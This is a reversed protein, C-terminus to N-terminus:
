RNRGGIVTGGFLAHVATLLTDDADPTKRENEAYGIAWIAFALANEPNSTIIEILLQDRQENYSGRELRARFENIVYEVVREPTCHAADTRPLRLFHNAISGRLAAPILDLFARRGELVKCDLLSSNQM